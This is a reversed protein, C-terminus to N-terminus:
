AFVTAALLAGCTTAGLASALLAIGWAAVSVHLAFLAHMADAPQAIWYSAWMLPYLAQAQPDALLPSGSWLYPNWAPLWGNALQRYAEHTLPLNHGLNDLRLVQSSDVSLWVAAGLAIAFLGILVNRASM